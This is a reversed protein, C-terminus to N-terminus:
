GSPAAGAGAGAGAGRGGGAAAAAGLTVQQAQYTGDGAQPGQVAIRDGIKVDALAGSVTKSFQAGTGTAVKVTNGQADTVYVNSGDILKVVGAVRGAGGAAGGGAAALRGSGFRSALSQASGTSAPAKQHKQVAVGAYFGVAGM